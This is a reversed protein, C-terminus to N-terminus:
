PTVNLGGKPSVPLTLTGSGNTVVLQADGAAIGTLNYSCKIQTATTSCGSGSYTTGGQVLNASAGNLNYGTITVLLSNLNATASLSIHYPNITNVRPFNANSTLMLRVKQLYESGGYPYTTSPPNSAIYTPVSIPQLSNIGGYPVAAALYYKTAGVACGTTASATNDSNCFIYGNVPALNQLAALGGADTSVRNDSVTGTTYNSYYNDYYYSYDTNITYSKYGGKAYIKAGSIPNGSTDTAELLLSSAGQPAIVLTVASASQSIIKQSIYTPVLSGSASITALSSYGSSSATIVYDTGNDPPLGYFIATGNTDTSDSVNANPTITTNKVNVTAGSVVAGTSDLVTVFLAGTTSATESVRAAVETDVSALHAGSTDVVDVHIIKYDAANLDTAAAGSPPPYNRCYTQKLAPTPYSGCGDYADDIYGISTTATYKVGNITQVKTAPLLSTAYISGGQVALSDYPLSKLYEMQNTALTLATDRRKAVITSHVLSVFLGFFSVVVIGIIVVTLTLEVLTFGAESAWKKNMKPVTYGMLPKASAPWVLM